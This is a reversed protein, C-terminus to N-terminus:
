LYETPARYGASVGVRGDDYFWMNTKWPFLSIREIGAAKAAEHLILCPGYDVGLTRPSYEDLTELQEQLSLKFAELQENTPNKHSAATMIEALQYGDNQPDAREEDSLGDFKPNVIANAWWDVAKEIQEDTLKWM